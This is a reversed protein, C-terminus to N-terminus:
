SAAALAVEPVTGPTRLSSEGAAWRGLVHEAFRGDVYLCAAAGFVIDEAVDPEDEALAGCVDHAVLQEHLADATVHEDFFDCAADDVGLRRLGKAYRRCPASSTM